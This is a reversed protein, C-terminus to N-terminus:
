ENGKGGLAILREYSAFWKAQMEENWSPDFEPLKKILIEALSDKSASQQPINPKQSAILSVTEVPVDSKAQMPKAAKIASYVTNTVSVYGEGRKEDELFASMENLQIDPSFCYIYEKTGRGLSNAQGNRKQRVLLGIEELRRLRNHINQPKIGTQCSLENMSLEKDPSDFIVRLLLIHDGRSSPRIDLIREQVSKGSFKSPEQDSQIVPEGKVEFSKETSIATESSQQLFRHQDFVVDGEQWALCSLLGKSSFTDGLFSKHIISTNEPHM